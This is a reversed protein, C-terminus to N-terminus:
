VTKVPAPTVPVMAVTRSSLVSQPSNRLVSIASMTVATEVVSVPRMAGAFGEPIEAARGMVPRNSACVRIMRATSDRLANEACAGADMLAASKEKAHLHAVNGWIASTAMKPARVFGAVAMVRASIRATVSLKAALERTASVQKRARVTTATPATRSCKRTVPTTEAILNIRSKVAVVAMSVNVSVFAIGSPRAAFLTWPVSANKAFAVVVGPSTALQAVRARLACTTWVPVRAIEASDAAAMVAVNNAPVNRLVVNMELASLM